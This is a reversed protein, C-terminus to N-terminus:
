KLKNRVNESSVKNQHKQATEALDLQKEKIQAEFENVAQMIEVLGWEGSDVKEIIERKRPSSLNLIEIASWLRSRYETYVRYQEATMAPKVGKEAEDPTIKAEGNRNVSFGHAENIRKMTARRMEQMEKAHPNKAIFKAVDFLATEIAKRDKLESLKPYRDKYYQYTDTWSWEKEMRKMSKRMIDRLRTYEQRLERESWKQENRLTFRDYEAIPRSTTAKTQKGGM